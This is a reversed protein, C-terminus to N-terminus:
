RFHVMVEEAFLQLTVPDGRDPTFFIFDTIGKEQMQAIHDIIMPPTGIYGGADVGWGEGQFRRSALAKADVLSSEDPAIVLVAEHSIRISRPDRGIKECETELQRMREEWTALGYTPVSWVDAYKAVLPLTYRPGVGGIHIPPHPDQHPRPLSPFESITFHTGDFTTPEGTFMKSLIELTEALRESREAFSGWPLGAEHHELEYSGSGLGLEFRGKSLVDLTVVMKGLVAPNRFNACVVLHGVRLRETRALVYSALIFAEFSDITPSGPGYLHDYLWLSDFGLREVALARDLYEDGTFKMQPLYIGFSPPPTTTM